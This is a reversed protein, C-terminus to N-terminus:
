KRLEIEVERGMLSLLKQNKIIAGCLKPAVKKSTKIKVAGEME